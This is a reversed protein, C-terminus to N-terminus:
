NYLPTLLLTWLYVSDKATETYAIIRVLFVLRQVEQGDECKKSSTIHLCIKLAYVITCIIYLKWLNPMCSTTDDSPPIQEPHLHLPLAMNLVIRHLYKPRWALKNM